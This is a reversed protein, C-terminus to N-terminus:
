TAVEAAVFLAAITPNLLPSFFTGGLEVKVGDVVISSLRGPVVGTDVM